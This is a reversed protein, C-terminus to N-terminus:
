KKYRQGEFGEAAIPLGEAWQPVITMVSDLEGISGFDSDVLTINEDHICGRLEYGCKECELMADTLVDRATAQVANETLRGPIVTLREWKRTYTNQGMHTIALKEQGWPTMVMRLEPKYYALMRGNPLRMYLYEGMVRFKILKYVGVTGPSTIAKTAAEYLDYWMKVILYYKERYGKVIDEAEEESLNIGWSTRCIERFTKWGGGFGCSLVAIKGLQRQDKTVAEYDVHYIDAAADKYQDFNNRFGQLTVEDGALWALVRNEISSFDSVVLKKGKPATLCSRVLKIAENYVNLESTQGNKFMSILEEPSDHSDRPLNHIQFGSGAFRGTTAKHFIINNKITNDSCLAKRIFDFKKVPTRSLESRIELFRRAKANTDKRKLAKQVDAKTYGDMAVGQEQLWALSKPRSGTSILEGNTLEEIEKNLRIQYEDKAELISDVLEVDVPIGRENIKLTLHYLELERGKIERPLLKKIAKEAKVDQICYDYFEQFLEPEIEPTVRDYPKNKTPKRPKALLTILQRGRKDKQESTGLAEACAGLSAPLSLAMADTMTCLMQEPKLKPWGYRIGVYNFIAYEFGANYARIFNGNKIHETVIKPEPGGFKWLHVEEEDAFSYAMCIIETSEDQAYRFAGTKIECRSFTEFDINLVKEM